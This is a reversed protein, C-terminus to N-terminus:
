EVATGVPEPRLPLLISFTTTQGQETDVWIRGGHAEVLTKAISLGIGADGLGQILPKDARYRRNFVRALFEPQVGGGTDTVQLLLYSEDNQKEVKSRLTITGDQPTVTGANQLLHVVIQQIADRDAYIRPLDAPLDVRLTIKKERLQGSTDEMAGDIITGLEVPKPLLELSGGTSAVQILDDLMSRMRETSARIRELFKRQLAGLIGVSEALLLDTYGLISSMPQRIEQTIAAIVERDETSQLNSAPTQREFILVAANAKALENQLHAMEQLTARLDAELRESEDVSLGGKRQSHPTTKLRENEAQLATIAEQSEQQLAILANIDPSAAASLSTRRAEALDDSLM